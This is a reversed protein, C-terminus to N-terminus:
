TETVWRVVREPYKACFDATPIPEQTEVLSTLEVIMFGISIKETLVAIRALFESRGADTEIEHALGLAAEHAIENRAERAKALSGSVDSAFRWEQYDLINKIHQRMRQNWIEGVAISFVDTGVASVKQLEPLRAKM